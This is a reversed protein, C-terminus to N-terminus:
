VDDGMVEAFTGALEEFMKESLRNDRLPDYHSPTTVRSLYAGAAIASWITVARRVRRDAICVGMRDALAWGLVEKRAASAQRVLRPSTAVVHAMALMRERTIVGRGDIIATLVETTAVLLAIEPSATPRVQGLAAAIRELVSYVVSMVIADKSAFHRALQEPAVEAGASIACLTTAEFGYRECLRFAADIVRERDDQEGM